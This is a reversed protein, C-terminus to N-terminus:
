KQDNLGRALLRAFIYGGGLGAFKPFQAGFLGETDGAGNHTGAVLAFAAVAAVAFAVM